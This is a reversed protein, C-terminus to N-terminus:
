CKILPLGRVRSFHEDRAMLPLKAEIASAAIWIDNTPIKLGRSELDFLIKAYIIPTKPSVHIVTQDIITKCVQEWASKNKAKLSGYSIEAMTVFNIAFNKGTVMNQVETDGRSLCIIASTDAVFDIRRLIM